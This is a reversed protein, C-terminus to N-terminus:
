RPQGIPGLDPELGHLDFARFQSFTHHEPGHFDSSGTTLLGDDTCKQALFRVQDATFSPYFVEVGDIGYGRFTDIARSVVYSRPSNRMRCARGSGDVLTAGMKESMKSIEERRIMNEQAVKVAEFLKTREPQPRKWAAYTFVIRM